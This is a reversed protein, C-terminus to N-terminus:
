DEYLKFFQFDPGPPEGRRGVINIKEKIRSWVKFHPVQFINIRYARRKTTDRIKYAM